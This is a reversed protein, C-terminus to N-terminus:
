ACRCRAGARMDIANSLAEQILRYAVIKVPLPAQEPLPAQGPLPEFQTTVAMATRRQQVKVVRALTETLSLHDLEPVGLGGSIARVEQLATRVATEVATLDGSNDDAQTESRAVVTDLRLLALGLDQAPGDHLEASIRRLFRENLEAAHATARSVRLHLQKNQDLLDTLQAVQARLEAAAARHHPQRAACHGDPPM